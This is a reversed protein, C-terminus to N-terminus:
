RYGGICSSYSGSMNDLFMALLFLIFCLTVIIAVAIQQNNM